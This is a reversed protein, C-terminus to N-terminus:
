SVEPPVLEVWASNKFCHPMSSRTRSPVSYQSLMFCAGSTAAIFIRLREFSATARVSFSLMPENLLRRYEQLHIYLSTELDFGFLQAQLDISIEASFQIILLFLLVWVGFLLDVNSVFSDIIFVLIM